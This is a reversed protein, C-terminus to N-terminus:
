VLLFDDIKRFITADLLEWHHGDRIELTSNKLLQHLKQGLALPMMADHNGSIVLSPNNITSLLKTNNTALVFHLLELNKEPSIKIISAFDAAVAAAYQAQGNATKLPNVHCYFTKQWAQPLRYLLSILSSWFFSPTLKLLAQALRSEPRFYPGSAVFILKAHPFKQALHPLLLGGMSFGVLLDPKRNDLFKTITSDVLSQDFKQPLTFFYPSVTTYGLNHLYHIFPSNPDIPQPWGHLLVALKAM